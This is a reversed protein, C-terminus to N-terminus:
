AVALPEKVGLKELLTELAQEDAKLLAKFDRNSTRSVEHFLDRYRRSLLDVVLERESDTLQLQM